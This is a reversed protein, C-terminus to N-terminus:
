PPTCVGRGVSDLRITRKIQYLFIEPFLHIALSLTVHPNQGGM